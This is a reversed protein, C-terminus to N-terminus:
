STEPGSVNLVKEPSSYHLTGGGGVMRRKYPSFTAFGFDALVMKGEHDIL